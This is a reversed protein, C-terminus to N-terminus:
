PQSPPNIITIKHDTMVDNHDFTYHGKVVHGDFVLPMWYQDDGWMKDYPIDKIDFWQPAMEESEAPEGHWEDCLYTYVYMRWPEDVDADQVFDHEGVYWYHTPTVGIEEQCERILAQEVTEGPELKGGVGNWRGAGFGRKKMALLVKNDQKLLLLTRRIDPHTEKSM